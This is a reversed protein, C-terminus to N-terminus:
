SILTLLASPAFLLSQANLFANEFTFNSKGIPLLVKHDKAHKFINARMRSNM